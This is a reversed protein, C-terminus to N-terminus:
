ASAKRPQDPQIKEGAKLQVLAKRYGPVRGVIRGRRRTKGLVTLVNVQEVHVGFQREVAHQIDPKTAYPQVRFTYWGDTQRLSAKETILPAILALATRTRVGPATPSGGASAARDGPVALSPAPADRGAAPATTRRRFLSLLGM